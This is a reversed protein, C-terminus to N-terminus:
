LVFQHRNSLYSKIWHLPNGRIGYHMLKKILISHDMMDFAKKLDIFVGVTFNSKDLKSTYLTM